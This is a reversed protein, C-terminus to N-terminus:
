LGLELQNKDVLDDFGLDVQQEAWKVYSEDGMEVLRDKFTAIMASARALKITEIPDTKEANEELINAVRNCSEAIESLQFVLKEEFNIM